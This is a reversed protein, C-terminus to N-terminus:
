KWMKKLQQTDAKRSHKNPNDIQREKQVAEAERQTGTIMQVSNKRFVRMKISLQRTKRQLLERVNILLSPTYGTVFHVRQLAGPAYHPDNPADTKPTARLASEASTAFIKL